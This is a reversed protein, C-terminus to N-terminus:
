RQADFVALGVEQGHALEVTHGDPDDIVVWYGVPPGSDTPGMRLRGEAAAQGALRDVDERSPVGVGLHGFPGLARDPTDTPILVIVFPRTLDSMWVIRGHGHESPREHVVRMGVYHEYFSISTEVDRVAFAIHTLGVDVPREDVV